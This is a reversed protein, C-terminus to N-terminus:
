KSRYVELEHVSMQTGPQNPGNPRLASVRVYRAKVPPFSAEYPKGKHENKSAVTVWKHRDMSLKFEFQTAYGSGFTVKIRNVPVTDILDVEYTWPWEGGPVAYTAKNGDVGLSAFHVRSNVVLHRSGDLSLLDAPKEFALNGPPVAQPPPTSKLYPRIAKLVELQSRDLTGDRYLLVDISVVGGRHNVKSIYRALERKQYRTGPEAWHEGLFSAIHWQEGKITASIPLDHFRNKEGCTYDELPTYANVKGLVEGSNM